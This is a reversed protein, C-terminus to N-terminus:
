SRATAQHLVETQAPVATTTTTTTIHVKPWAKKRRRKSKGTHYIYDNTTGKPATVPCRQQQRKSGMLYPRRQPQPQPQQILVFCPVSARVAAARLVDREVVLENVCLIELHTPPCKDTGGNQPMPKIRLDNVVSTSPQIHGFSKIKQERERQKQKEQTSPTTQHPKCAKM